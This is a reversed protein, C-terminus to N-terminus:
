ALEECLHLSDRLRRRDFDDELYHFDIRPQVNPDASELCLAGQGVSLNLVPQLTIGVPTVGDGGRDVRATAFSTMFIQMDNRLDSGTATYRLVVQYRPLSPDMRYEDTPRWTSYVHPHDRLNQGVGPLDVRVDVGARRLQDAPGVGSLMLVHPSGIAGASLIVEDADFLSTEGNREAVVGVARNGEILVRGVRSDPVISFNARDRAPNVYALLTSWRVGDLTNLPIPGVGSVDPANHDPCDAFGSAICADYFACQPQLWDEKPWRKVPVPGKSGHYEVNPFDLDRELRKYSSLVNAFSWQDNGAAAWADFDEPVGRLFIEGNVASSGGVVKGRPVAMPEAEPTPQGVYGWDHDCPLIDAATIHGRKLKDPLADLSPYDPGAELLLVRRGPKESLRAALIAGASGAGVVITDYTARTSM